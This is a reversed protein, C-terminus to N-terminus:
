KHELRKLDKGSITDVLGTLDDKLLHISTATAISGVANLKMKKIPDDEQSAVQFANKAVTAAFIGGSTKAIDAIKGM